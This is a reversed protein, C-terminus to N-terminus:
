SLALRSSIYLCNQKEIALSLITLALATKGTGAKGKVVLSFADHRLFQELESPIRRHDAVQLAPGRDRPMKVVICVRWQIYNNSSREKGSMALLAPVTREDIGFISIM